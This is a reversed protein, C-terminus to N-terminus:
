IRFHYTKTVIKICTIERASSLLGGSVLTVKYIWISFNNQLLKLLFHRFPVFFLACYVTLGTNLPWRQSLSFTAKYSLHGRLLPENWIFNEIVTCSFPSRKICTVAHSPKVTNPSQMPLNSQIQHRTKIHCTTNSTFIKFYVFTFFCLSWLFHLYIGVYIFFFFECFVSAHWM